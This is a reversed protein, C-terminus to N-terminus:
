NINRLVYLGQQCDTLSGNCEKEIVKEIYCSTCIYTGIEFCKIVDKGAFTINIYVYDRVNDIIYYLKMKFLSEYIKKM